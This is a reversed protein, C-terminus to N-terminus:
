SPRVAELVMTEFNNMQQNNAAIGHIELNRLNSDDSSLPAYQQINIFGAERLAMELLERDYLFQHGWNYFANNIVISPKYVPLRISKDTIWKIYEQALPNAQDHYLGLLVELNPTAVRIKGGPKLVRFCEKLMLSGQQRTLHEILHESFVYEFVSNDIPFPSAADMYYITKLKPNLDTNFWGELAITGAGLLLKPVSHSQLYIDLACRMAKKKFRLKIKEIDEFFGSVTSANRFYWLFKM